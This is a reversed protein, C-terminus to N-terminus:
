SIRGAPRGSRRFGLLIGLGSLMIVWTSPEPAALPSAQFSFDVERNDQLVTNNAGVHTWQDLVSAQVIYNGPQLTGSLNVSSPGSPNGNQDGVFITQMSGGSFRLYGEYNSFGGSYELSYSATATLTFNVPQSIDINIEAGSSYTEDATGTDNVDTQQAVSTNIHLTGGFQVNGPSLALSTNNLVTSQVQVHSYSVGQTYSQNYDGVASNTDGQNPTYSSQSAQDTETTQAGISRQPLAHFTIQAHAASAFTTSLLVALIGRPVFKNQSKGNAHKGVAPSGAGTRFFLHRLSM